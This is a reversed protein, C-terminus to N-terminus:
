LFFMVAVRPYLIFSFLCIWGTKKLNFVKNGFPGRKYRAQLMECSLIATLIFLFCNFDSKFFTSHSWSAFITEAKFTKGMEWHLLQLGSLFIFYFITVQIVCLQAHVYLIKIWTWLCNRSEQTSWHTESLHYREDKMWQNLICPTQQIPLFLDIELPSFFMPYPERERLRGNNWKRSDEAIKPLGKWGPMGAKLWDHPLEKKSYVLTYHLTERYLLWTGITKMWKMQLRWPSHGEWFAKFSFASSLSLTLFLFICRTLSHFPECDSLSLM